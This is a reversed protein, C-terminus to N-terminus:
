RKGIIHFDCVDYGEALTKTRILTNGMLEQSVFDIKCMVQKKRRHCLMSLRSKRM